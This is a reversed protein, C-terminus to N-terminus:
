KWRKGFIPREEEICAKFSPRAHVRAVFAALKPFRAADPPFGAHRLNVFGTGVTIDAITFRNGVFYERSGLQSELYALLPGLEDSVVKEAKAITAADPPKQTLVPDLALPRFVHPGGIPILGGDVFEEIWLARALEYPEAPFLAPEPHLKELYACIVSSDNVIRGDHELVPIRGLPSRERWNPPPSFPNIQELTYPIGKEACFVRTKRVFPSVSAGLIKIAM